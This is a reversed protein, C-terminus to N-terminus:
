GAPAATPAAGAMSMPAMRAPAVNPSLMEGIESVVMADAPVCPASM